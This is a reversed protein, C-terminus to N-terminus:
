IFYLRRQLMGAVIYKIEADKLRSITKDPLKQKNFLFRSILKTSFSSRYHQAHEVGSHDAQNLVQRQQDKCHDLHRAPTTLGYNKRSGDSKPKSHTRFINKCYRCAVWGELVKTNDDAQAILRLKSWLPSVTKNTNEILEFDGRKIKMRIESEDLLDFNPASTGTVANGTAM